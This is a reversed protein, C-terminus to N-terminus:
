TRQSPPALRMSSPNTKLIHVPSMYQFGVRTCADFQYLGGLIVGAGCRTDLLRVSGDPLGDLVNNVAAKSLLISYMVNIGAGVSLCDNVQYAISPIASIGELLAETLYYRGVWNRGYNLGSGWYGLAAFGATWCDDIRTTAYFNGAPLWTSADGHEGAVNTLGNPSFNVHAYIPEIGIQLSNCSLLSMGAPNTFVTSPDNARASWGASALRVDSASVEYVFLGGAHASWPLILCFLQALCKAIKM